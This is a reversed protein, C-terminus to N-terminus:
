VPVYKLDREFSPYQPEIIHPAKPRLSSRRGPVEPGHSRPSGDLLRAM